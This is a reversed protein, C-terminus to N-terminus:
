KAVDDTEYAAKFADHVRKVYIAHTEIPATSVHYILEMTKSRLEAEFLKRAIEATCKLTDANM